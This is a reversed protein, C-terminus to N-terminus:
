EVADVFGMQLALDGRGVQENGCTIWKEITDPSAKTYRAYTDRMIHLLVDDAKAGQTTPDPVYSVCTPEDDDGLKQMSHVLFLTMSDIYRHGPTGAALVFTCGSACLGEAHMEVVLGKDSADRVLRAIALSTFIPGGGSNITVKLTTAKSSLTEAVDDRAQKLMDADTPGEWRVSKTTPYYVWWAIMAAFIVAGTIPFLARKM